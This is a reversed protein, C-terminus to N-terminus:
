TTTRKWLITAGRKRTEKLFEFFDKSGALVSHAGKVRDGHVRQRRPLSGLASYRATAAGTRRLEEMRRARRGGGEEAAAGSFNRHLELRREAAHADVPQLAEHRDELLHALFEADEERGGGQVEHLYVRERRAEVQNSTAACV